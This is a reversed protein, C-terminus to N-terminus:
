LWNTNLWDIEAQIASERNYWTEPLIPGSVPSLNVCWGCPWSRTFTAVKGSEGFYTRLVHFLRCLLPNVPEVHSARRIISADDIFPSGLEGVLFRVNAEDDISITIIGHTAM